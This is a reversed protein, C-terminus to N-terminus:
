VLPATRHAVSGKELEKKTRRQARNTYTEKNQVGGRGLKSLDQRGGMEWVQRFL